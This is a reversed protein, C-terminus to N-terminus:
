PTPKPKSYFRVTFYYNNFILVGDELYPRVEFLHEYM